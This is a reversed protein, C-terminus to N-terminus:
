KIAYNCVLYVAQQWTSGWVNISSCTHVACGLRSSSAWVMQLLVSVTLSFSSPARPLM